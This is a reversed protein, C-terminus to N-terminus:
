QNKMTGFLKEFSGDYSTLASRLTTMEDESLSLTSSANLLAKRTDAPTEIKNQETLNVHLVIFASCSECKLQLLMFDDGTLKVSPFDVSIHTGCQPCRMQERIRTLIQHLSHPNVEM